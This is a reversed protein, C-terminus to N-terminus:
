RTAGPASRRFWSLDDGEFNTREDFGVSRLLRAALGQDAPEGRSRLFPGPDILLAEFAVMRQFQEDVAENAGRGGKLGIGLIRAGVFHARRPQAFIAIKGPELLGVSELHATGVEIAARGYRNPEYAIVDRGSAAILLALEGLGARLVAYADYAPLESDILELVTEERFGILTGRHLSRQHFYFGRAELGLGELERRYLTVLERNLQAALGDGLPLVPAADPGGDVFAAMSERTPTVTSAAAIPTAGLSPMRKGTFESLPAAADASGPPPIPADGFEPFAARVERRIRESRPYTELGPRGLVNALFNYTVEARLPQTEARWHYLDDTILRQSGLQSVLPALDLTPLNLRRAVEIQQARFGAPWEVARGDPMYRFTYLQLVTPRELRDRLRELDGVMDDVSLRRASLNEVGFRALGDDELDHPWNQLLIDAKEKLDDQANALARGWGSVVKGVVGAARLKDSIKNAVINLNVVRGCLIPEIPSSIEVLVIETAKVIDRTTETPQHLEKYALQIVQPPLKEGICFDLFQVAGGSSLVFPRWRFGLPTFPNGVFGEWTLFRQASQVGCSGFPFCQIIESM